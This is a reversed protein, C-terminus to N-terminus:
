QKLHLLTEIELIKKSTNGEKILFSDLKSVINKVDIKDDSIHEIDDEITEDETKLKVASDILNQLSNGANSFTIYNSNITNILKSQEQNLVHQLSDKKSNIVPILSGIINPLKEKYNINDPLQKEFNSILEPTYEKEIFLNIQKQKYAYLQNVLAINLQHMENAEKLVDQSLTSTSKPISICSCFVLTFISILYVSPKM